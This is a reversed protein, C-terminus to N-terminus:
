QIDTCQQQCSALCRLLDVLHPNALSYLRRTGERRVSVVDAHRLVAMHRSVTAQGLGLQEQLATVTHEGPVLLEIIHLRAEHGLAKLVEAIRPRSAPELRPARKHKKKKPNM